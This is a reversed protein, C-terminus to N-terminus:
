TKNGENDRVLNKNLGVRDQGDQLKTKIESIIKVKEVFIKGQIQCLRM